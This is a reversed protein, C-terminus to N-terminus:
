KDIQEPFLWNVSAEFILCPAKVDDFRIAQKKIKSGFM